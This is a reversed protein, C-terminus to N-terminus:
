SPTLTECSSRWLNYVAGRQDLSRTLKGGLSDTASRVKLYPAAGRGGVLLVKKGVLDRCAAM